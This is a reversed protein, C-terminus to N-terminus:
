LKRWENEFFINHWLELNFYTWLFASNIERHLRSKHADYITKFHKHDIFERSKFSASNVTDEFLEHYSGTKNIWDNIPTGFGIKKRYIQDKDIYKEAIKKLVAKREGNHVRLKYPISNATKFMPETCFPVRFELSAAMGMKDARWFWQPLDCIEDQLIAENLVNEKAFKAIENRPSMEAFNGNLLLDVSNLDAYTLVFMAPPYKTINLIKKGKLVPWYALMTKRLEPRRHLFTRFRITRLSEPNFRAYGLFSEDAGEGSLMVTVHEKAKKALYFTAASNPDNLPHEYHWIAKKFSSVFADEDMRYDHHETNYRKSVRKQYESEDYESEAFSISFSHLKKGTMESSIATILSSDVGGSLQVGLEVDSRLHLSVSERFVSETKECAEEFSCSEDTKLTDALNFYRSVSLNADKCRGCYGAGLSRVNKFMTREGPLSRFVLYENFSAYNPELSTYPLLSKIESSFIINQNDEFIFLPKIGLQDRAIFVEKTRLDAIIFAFMGIFKKLCEAGWRIYSNLVVETDSSSKFVYGDGALEKRIERYNYLEGNFVILHSKESNFMPQHGKESLDIIKLRRFGLSLWDNRFYGDDDPGRHAILSTMERLKDEPFPNNKKSIIGVFGCM